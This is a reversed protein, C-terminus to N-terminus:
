KGPTSFDRKMGLYDDFVKGQKVKLPSEKGFEKQLKKIISPVVKPSKHSLKLNEVHWCITFQNGQIQKNAVCSNYANITFGLQKVLFGSLKKWFLLTAQLTGYLAKDLETYIVKKGRAHTIFQVYDPRLKVILDVLEGKLKVHILEDINVQMFAGIVAVDRGEMTDFIATIFIAETSVTPAHIEDKSKYVRQKREDTCGRGKVESSRKEKLFMLYRLASIKQDRTLSKVDAPHM